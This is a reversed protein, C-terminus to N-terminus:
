KDVCIELAEEGWASSFWYAGGNRVPYVASLNENGPMGRRNLKFKYTFALGSTTKFPYNEFAVICEWLKEGNVDKRLKEVARKRKKYIRVRDANVSLEGSGNATKIEDMKYIIKEYPLNNNVAARSLNLLAMIQEVTHGNSRLEQIKETIPSSYTHATILLKKVKAPNFIGDGEM